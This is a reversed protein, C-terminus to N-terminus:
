SGATEMGPKPCLYMGTNANGLLSLGQQEERQLSDRGKGKEDLCPCGSSKPKRACNIGLQGIFKMKQVRM